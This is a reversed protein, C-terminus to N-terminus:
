RGDREVELVAHHTVRAHRQAANRGRWPARTLRLRQQFPLFEVVRKRLAHRFRSEGGGPAVLMVCELNREALAHDRAGQMLGCRHLDSWTSQRERASLWYPDASEANRRRRWLLRFPVIHRPCAAPADPRHM